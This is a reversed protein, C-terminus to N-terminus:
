LKTGYDNIKWGESTRICEFTCRNSFSDGNFVYENEPIDYVISVNVKNDDLVAIKTEYEADLPYYPFGSLMKIPNKYILGNSTVFMYCFPTKKENTAYDGAWIYNDPYSDFDLDTCLAYSSNDPFLRSVILESTFIRKMEEEIQSVSTYDPNVYQAFESCKESNLWYKKSNDNDNYIDTCIANGFKNCDLVLKEVAEMEERSFSQEAAENVQVVDSILWKGDSNKKATFQYTMPISNIEAFNNQSGTKRRFVLRDDSYSIIVPEDTFQAPYNYQMASMPDKYLEGKYEIIIPVFPFRVSDISDTERYGAFIRSFLSAFLENEMYSQELIENLSHVNWFVNYLESDEHTIKNYQAEVEQSDQILTFTLSEGTASRGYIYRYLQSYRDSLELAIQDYATEREQVSSESPRANNIRWENTSNSRVVEFEYETESHKKGNKEYQEIVAKVRFMDAGTESVEIDRCEWRCSGDAFAENYYTYLEGNYMFFRANANGAYWDIAEYNSGEVFGSKDLAESFDFNNDLYEDTMYKKGLERFDAMSNITRDSYRAINIDDGEINLKVITNEDSSPYDFRTRFDVYGSILYEATEQYDVADSSSMMDSATGSEFGDLTGNKIYYGLGGSGALLVGAVAVSALRRKWVPRSYREVGSVTNGETVPIEGTERSFERESRKYMRNKEQETLMPLQSPIEGESFDFLDKENVRKSM